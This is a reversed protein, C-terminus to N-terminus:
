LLWWHFRFSGFLWRCLLELLQMIGGISSPLPYAPVRVFSASFKFSVSKGPDM